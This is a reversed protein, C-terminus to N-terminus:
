SQTREGKFSVDERDNNTALARAAEIHQLKSCKMNKM